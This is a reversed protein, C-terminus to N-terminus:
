KMYRMMLARYDEGHPSTYNREDILTFGENELDKQTWGSLHKQAKDGAHTHIGWASKPENKVFGDPTFLIIQKRAVRKMEKILAKGREKPFHEIGDIISIADFSDDKQNEVFNLADMEVTKVFPYLRKVENLYEPIIDVATVDETTLKRLEMGNGCCLSLLSQGNECAQRVYFYPNM